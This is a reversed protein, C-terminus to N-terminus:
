KNDKLIWDYYFPYTNDWSRWLTYDANSVTQYTNISANNVQVWDSYLDTGNATANENVWLILPKNADYTEIATKSSRWNASSGIAHTLVEDPFAATFAWLALGSFNLGCTWTNLNGSLNSMYDDTGDFDIIPNFNSFANNGDLYTPASIATADLNNGSQDSWINLGTGNISTSTGDDAKLWV